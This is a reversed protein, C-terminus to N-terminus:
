VQVQKYIYIIGDKEKFHMLIGESTKIKQMPIKRLKWWMRWPNFIYRYTRIDWEKYSCQPKDIM